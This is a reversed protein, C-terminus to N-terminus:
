RSQNALGQCFRRILARLIEITPPIRALDLYEDPQHAQAIDGPGCVIADIGAAQFLGAETGYSVAAIPTQGTLTALRRAIDADRPLALGPYDAIWDWATTFGRAELGALAARVPELLAAPLVGPVARAELEARCTAPIVNLAEGGAVIGIQVTSWPPAFDTDLPGVKCVAESALAFALVEM